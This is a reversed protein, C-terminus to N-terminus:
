GNASVALAERAARYGAEEYKAANQTAFTGGKEVGPRVYVLPPRGPTARWLAIALETNASMLVNTSDNHMRILPPPALRGTAPVADFGPGADVAIVLDAEFRGAAELPVVGRLGGDALRRGSVLEPPYWLPLACSACLATLLPVDEGGAGFCVLDGTDLDTATVTLPLELQDFRTVPVFGALTRRLPEAQLLASAFLWQVLATTSLRAVDRRRVGLARELIEEPLLGAALAAGMVAGLSTGVYRTPELGAEKLARVAGLHATAKVGGGSLVATIRKKM